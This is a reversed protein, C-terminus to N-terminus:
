EPDASVLTYPPFPLVSPCTLPLLRLLLPGAM